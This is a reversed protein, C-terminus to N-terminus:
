GARRLRLANGVVSLSSLSMAVGAWVPSISGWGAPVLIGAAVPILLVNYLMALLLNERINRLTARSLRRARVLGRLDGGILTIGASELAVDTGGGMAIGVNAQALAPADNIGDGAMAVRSGETQLRQVLDKKGAPLLEAFFETVGLRRAIVEATARSDGTVMALRIGEQRLTALAEPTSPKIPDTVGFVGATVGDAALFMVTEGDGRLVDARAATDALVIKEEVFLRANGLLLRRGDVTGSVGHGPIGRFDHVERLPLQREDAARVFVAALPHESGRELSAALQLVEGATFGPAPEAHSLTPKGETLTGTKDLLLTDATALAQLADANRILVGIEAGRGLGVMLAMPTALGLACPCAIILVAVAHLLGSLWGTTGGFAGWAVLTVLAVFLVTPIFFASVRDVLRQVPARSRQAEGVLRVIQALLTDSGVHEARMVFTGNGNLTAGIVKAGPGKEVPLPEGSIMSEDVASKGERVDGDVPVKEGPRVRLLDGVQVLELPVDEERGNPLVLRATKPALGLLKRLAANTLKRARLELVRGLLVLITIMAASEFYIHHVEEATLGGSRFLALLVTVLSYIHATGVGLAILTFMNLSRNVLSARARHFIPWGAYFVVASTLVAQLIGNLTPNLLHLGVMGAMELVFVPLGLLLGVWFRQAMDLLEPDSGEEALPNRPQLAMGCKPCAGPRDSVVDPDMPCFYEVGAGTTPAPMAEKKGQHVYRHADARFQKECYASCFYYTIGEFSASAAAQAPDVSM